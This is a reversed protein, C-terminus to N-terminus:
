LVGADEGEKALYVKVPQCQGDLEVMPGFDFSGNGCIESQAGDSDRVEM